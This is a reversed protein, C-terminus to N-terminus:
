EVDNDVSQCASSTVAGIGIVAVMGDINCRGLINHHGVELCTPPASTAEIAQYLKDIRSEQTSGQRLHFRIARMVQRAVPPVIRDHEGIPRAARADVHVEM